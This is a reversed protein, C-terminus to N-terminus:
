WVKNVEGSIPAIIGAITRLLTSKGVGNSGVICHIGNSLNISFAPAIPNGVSWGYSLEIIEIIPNSM